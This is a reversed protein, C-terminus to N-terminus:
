LPRFMVLADVFGLSAHRFVGPLRGVIEFGLQQWLRVAAANTSVVLNFQMARFGLRRAEDLSREGMARGVGLGRASAAVMYAGNAVHAGLGPQNPKLHYSGVIRGEQEAVFAHAGLQFWYALADARPMAPDFAFVDGRVIVELFIEWIADDDTRAAPRISLMRTGSAM